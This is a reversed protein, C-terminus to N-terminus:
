IETQAGVTVPLIDSREGGIFAVLRVEAARSISKPALRPTKTSRTKKDGGPLEALADIRWVGSDPLSGAAARGGARRFVEPIGVASNSDSGGGSVGPSKAVAKAAASRSGFASSRILLIM